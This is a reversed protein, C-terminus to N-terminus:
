HTLSEANRFHFFHDDGRDETDWGMQSFNKVWEERLGAESLLFFNFVSEYYIPTLGDFIRLLEAKSYERVHQRFVYAPSHEVAKAIAAYSCPNPTTLIIDADPKAIRKVEASYSRVGSEMFLVVESFQKEPQDKLHEIVELSIILDAFGSDVDFDSRLDAETAVCQNFGSLFVSLPSAGGTEVIVKGRLEGLQRTLLGFTNLYRYFHSSYAFEENTELFNRFNLWDANDSYRPALQKEVLNQVFAFKQEDRTTSWAPRWDPDITKMPNKRDAVLTSHFTVQPNVNKDCASVPQETGSQAPTLETAAGAATRQQVGFEPPSNGM